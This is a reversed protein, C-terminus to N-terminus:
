VMVCAKLHGLCRTYASAVLPGTGLVGSSISLCTHTDWTHEMLAWLCMWSDQLVGPVEFAVLQKHTVLQRGGKM